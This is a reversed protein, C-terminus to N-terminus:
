KRSLAKRCTHQAMPAQTRWLLNAMMEDFCQPALAPSTSSCEWEEELQESAPPARSRKWIRSKSAKLAPAARVASLHAALMGGAHQAQADLTRTGDPHGLPARKQPGAARSKSSESQSRTVAALSGTSLPRPSSADASPRRSACVKSPSPSSAGSRTARPKYASSVLLLDSAASKTDVRQKYQQLASALDLGAPRVYEQLGASFSFSLRVPSALSELTQELWVNADNPAHIAAAPM